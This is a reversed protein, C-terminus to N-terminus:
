NINQVSLDKCLFKQHIFILVKIYLIIFVKIIYGEHLRCCLVSTLSAILHEESQKKTLM